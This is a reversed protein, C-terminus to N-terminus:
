GLATLEGIATLLEDFEYPKMLSMIRKKEDSLDHEVHGTSLLIPLDTQQVRLMPVLDCGNGDPLNVDIIAVQPQM